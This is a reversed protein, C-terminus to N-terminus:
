RDLIMMGFMEATWAGIGMTIAINIAGFVAFRHFRDPQQDPV